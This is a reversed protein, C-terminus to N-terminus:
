SRSGPRRPIGSISRVGTPSAPPTAPSPARSPSCCSSAVRRPRLSGPRQTPSTAATSVAVGDISRTGPGQDRPVFDAWARWATGGVALTATTDLSRDVMPLTQFYTGNEGAPELGLRRVESAIYDTGLVNGRSGLIRGEMSDASFRYLRSQLDAISIEGRTPRPRLTRTGGIAAWPDRTQAALSTSLTLPAAAALFLLVTSTPRRIM